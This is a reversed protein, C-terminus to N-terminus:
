EKQIFITYLQHTDFYEVKEVALGFRELYVDVRERQVDDFHPSFYYVLEENEVLTQIAQGVRFDFFRVIVQREPWFFKDEHDTVIIAGEDTNALVWNQVNQAYILNNKTSKLGDVGSYVINASLVFFIGMFIIGLIGVTKKHSVKEKVWFLGFVIFIIDVIFLPLWYRTYAVGINGLSFLTDHHSGYYVFLFVSMLVSVIGFTTQASTLRKKCWDYVFVGFGFLAPISFWWFMKIFYFWGSKLIMKVDIGFPFIFSYWYEIELSRSSIYSGASSGYLVANLWGYLGVFLLGICTWMLLRSFLIDKRHLLLVVFACLAIWLIENPRMLVGTMFISMGLVDNSWTYKKIPKAILLWLGILCLSVFPVNHFMSRATYYWLVPHFFMLLSAWFAIKESFIKKTIRYFAWVGCIALLSTIFIMLNVGVLKGIVGYFVPMGWFGVPLISDGNQEQVFTSRPHIFENLNEYDKKLGITLSTEHAVSTSFVSNATEDPSNFIGPVSFNLCNYLFFFVVSFILLIRMHNNRLMGM